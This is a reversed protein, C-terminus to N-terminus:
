RTRSSRCTWRHAVARDRPAARACTRAISWTTWSRPRRRARAPPATPTSRRRRSAARGARRESVPLDFRIGDRGGAHSSRATLRWSCRSCAAPSRGDAGRRGKRSALARAAQGTLTVRDLAEGGDLYVLDIRRAAMSDLAGGGGAVRADGRLEIFPRVGRRGLAARHDHGGRLDARGRQARGGGTLVLVDM